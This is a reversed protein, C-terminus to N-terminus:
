GRVRVVKRKGKGAGAPMGPMGPPVGEAPAANMGAKVTDILVGSSLAPSFESIRNSL